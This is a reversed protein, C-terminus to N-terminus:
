IRGLHVVQSEVSVLLPKNNVTLADCLVGYAVHLIQVSYWHLSYFQVM